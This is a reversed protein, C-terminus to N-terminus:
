RRQKKIDSILLLQFRTKLFRQRQSKGFPPTKGKTGTNVQASDEQWARTDPVPTAVDEEEIARMFDDHSIGSLVNLAM